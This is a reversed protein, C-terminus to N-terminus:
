AHLVELADRTIPLHMHRGEGVGWEATQVRRIEGWWEQREEGATMGYMGYEFCLRICFLPQMTALSIAVMSALAPTGVLVHLLPPQLLLPQLLLPQPVNCRLTHRRAPMEWTSVTSRCWLSSCPKKSMGTSLRLAEGMTM